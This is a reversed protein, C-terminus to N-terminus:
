DGPQDLARRVKQLLESHRFPKQLRPRAELLGPPVPRSDAYGSMYLVKLGPRERELVALLQPGSMEPMVVDTLLLHIPGQHGRVLSIAAKGGEAELVQYGRRRLAAGILSRVPDEDEVLLITEGGELSSASPPPLTLPRAEERVSPFYLTFSTGQGPQSHVQVYGQSQQIIGYVTALGLGSGHDPAKTTFFPEFIHAQISEDMGVGNDTLTLTVYPGAALEAIEGEALEQMGTAIALRGGQPMADRANVAINMIVQEMQAPDARIRGLEPHTSVCLEIDEGILRHLLGEMNRVLANLDLVVPAMLQRRSFALLQRTLSSAKEAAQLIKSANELLDPEATMLGEVLSDACYTIVTLLNNFDHAIGGALRGIAEMKQARFLREELRRRETIDRAVVSAALARGDPGLIPSLSLSVEVRRGDRTLHTTEVNRLTHGQHLLEHM